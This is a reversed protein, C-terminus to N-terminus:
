NGGSNLYKYGYSVRPYQDSLSDDPWCFDEAGFVVKADFSDFNTLIENKDSTM